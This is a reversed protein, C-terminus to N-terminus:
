GSYTDINSLAEMSTRISKLTANFKNMIVFYIERDMFELMEVVGRSIKDAHPVPM